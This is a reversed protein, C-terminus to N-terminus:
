PQANFLDLLQAVATAPLGGRLRSYAHLNVRAAEARNTAADGTSNAPFLSELTLQQIREAALENRKIESRLDASAESDFASGPLKLYRRASRLPRVVEDRWAAVAANIGAVTADDLSRELTALYLLYLAVNVDAGGDDQLALCVAPVGPQAYFRLSFDWFASPTPSM